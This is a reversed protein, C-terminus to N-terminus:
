DWGVTNSEINWAEPWTEPVARHLFASIPIVSTGGLGIVFAHGEDVLGAMEDQGSDMHNRVTRSAM